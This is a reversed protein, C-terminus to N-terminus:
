MMPHSLFYSKYLVHFLSIQKIPSIGGNAHLVWSFYQFVVNLTALRYATIKISIM